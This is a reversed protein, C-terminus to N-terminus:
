LCIKMIQRKEKFHRLIFAEARTCSGKYFLRNKTKLDSKGWFKGM